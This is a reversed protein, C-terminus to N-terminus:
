RRPGPLLTRRAFSALRQNAREASIHTGTFFAQLALGDLMATFDLAFEGADIEPSFEGTAQGRAVISAVAQRWAEYQEAHWRHLEPTRPAAAWYDVWLRWHDVTDPTGSLLRDIIVVLGALASQANKAQDMLPDTFTEREIDLVEALIETMSSFHYTITGTSVEGATAIDRIGTAALGKDAITRRAAAIVMRRRVETPQRIREAPSRAGRRHAATSDAADM